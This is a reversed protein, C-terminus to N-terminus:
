SLEGASYLYGSSFLPLLLSPAASDNYMMCPHLPSLGFRQLEQSHQVVFAVFSLSATQHHSSRPVTIFLLIPSGRVVGKNTSYFLQSYFSSYSANGLNIQDPLQIYPIGLSIAASKYIFLLQIQGLQLPAVLSAANSATVNAGKQLLREVFYSQNDSYLLGAAQLVLWARLGAPDSNPDSIGVKVQGSTIDLFLQKWYSINGSTAKEYDELITKMASSSNSYAICMQDAAFAIAWGASESDMYRFTVADRSVSIFVDAPNGQAIERALLFSGGGKPNQYPISTQNAYISYLYSAEKTYADATYITLPSQQNTALVSAAVIIAAIVGLAAAAIMKNM